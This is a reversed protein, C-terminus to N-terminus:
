GGSKANSKLILREGIAKVVPPSVANGICKYRQTDSLAKTWGDPFGQLRECELPTLRRIGEPLEVAQCNGSDVCYTNGDIRSLPGSGGTSTKNRISPRNPDRPQLNHVRPIENLRRNNEKIYLDGGGTNVCPSYVRQGEGPAKQQAQIFVSDDETFPFVKPSSEGRLHGIFYIRERNQPLIWRTNFLQWECVYLGLDAISRLVTTFDRWDSSSFLGKVNEFIFVTPQAAKIIQLAEFFLGSRDAHLGRRKGAVSLDQCPFGFTFLDLRGPLRRSPIIARVDGLDEGTTFHEQYVQKAHKNIESFGVWNFKFGAQKLGLHFGGIGSFADLYNIKM